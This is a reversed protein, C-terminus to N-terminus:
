IIEETYSWILEMLANGMDDCPMEFDLRNGSEMSELFSTLCKNIRTKQNSHINADINNFHIQIKEIPTCDYIEWYKIFDEVIELFEFWYRLGLMDDHVTYHVENYFLHANLLKDLSYSHLNLCDRMHNFEWLINYATESLEHIYGSEEFFQLNYILMNINSVFYDANFNIIDVNLVEPEVREWELIIKDIEPQYSTLDQSYSAKWLAILSQDLSPYIYEEAQIFNSM